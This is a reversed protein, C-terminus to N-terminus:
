GYKAAEYRALATELLDTNLSGGASRPPRRKKFEPAIVPADPAQSTGGSPPQHNKELEAMRVYEAANQKERKIIGRKMRAHERAESTSNFGRKEIVRVEPDILRGDADEVLVASTLDSPDFRVVVKKGAHEQLAASWYRNVHPEKGLRISGDPTVTRSEATLFFYRRQAQSLKRVKTEALGREFVARHSTKYAVKSRRDTRTNYHEVAEALVTRFLELSVAREGYNAPKESPSRGTYAGTLRPDKESREKIEGFGREVLKSRGNYPTAFDVRCGIRPLLGRHRRRQGQLPSPGQCRCDIGQQSRGQHQRLAREPHRIGTFVDCLAGRYM